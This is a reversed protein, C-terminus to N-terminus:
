HQSNLDWEPHPISSVVNHSLTQWHSAAPQHNEGLVGTAKVLLVSQWSIVSINNLTGYFVMVRVWLFRPKDGFERTNNEKVKLFSSTVPILKNNSHLRM